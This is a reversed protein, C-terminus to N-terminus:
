SVLAFDDKSTVEPILHTIPHPLSLPPRFLGEGGMCVQGGKCTTDTVFLAYVVKCQEGLEEM